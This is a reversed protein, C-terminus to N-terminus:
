LSVLKHELRAGDEAMNSTAGAMAVTIARLSHKDLVTNASQWQMQATHQVHKQILAQLSGVMGLDRACQPPVMTTTGSTTAASLTGTAMSCSKLCLHLALLPLLAMKQECLATKTVVVADANAKNTTATAVGSQGEQACGAGTDIAALTGQESTVGANISSITDTAFTRCQTETGGSKLTSQVFEAGSTGSDKAEPVVLDTTPLAVCFSAILAIIFVRQGMMNARHSEGM